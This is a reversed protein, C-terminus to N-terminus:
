RSHNERGRLSLLNVTDALACKERDERWDNVHHVLGSDALPQVRYKKENSTM